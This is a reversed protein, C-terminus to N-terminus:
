SLVNSFAHINAAMMLCSEGYKEMVKAM